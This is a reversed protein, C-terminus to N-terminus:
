FTISYDLVTYYVTVKLASEWDKFSWAYTLALNNIVFQFTVLSFNTNMNLSNIIFWYLAESVYNEFNFYSKKKLNLPM